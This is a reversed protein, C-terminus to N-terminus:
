PLANGIFIHVVSYTSTVPEVIGMVAKYTVDPQAFLLMVPIGVEKSKLIKLLAYKDSITHETIALTAKTANNEWIAEINTLSYEAKGDIMQVHIEWKLPTRNQRKRLDEEPVFSKYYLQGKTPAEIRIGKESDLITLITCLKKVTQLPLDDTFTITVFPDYGANIIDKFKELLDPLPANTLITEKTDSLDFIMSEQSNTTAPSWNVKMAFDRVRTKGDKHEPEIIIDLLEGPTFSYDGNVVQSNYVESKGAIRPLDLISDIENYNAAISRPDFEDAALSQMASNTKSILLRSGTFVFGSAPIIKGTNSNKILSEIPIYKSNPQKTKRFRMTVREGKPWFQMITQNVPRGPTMGIFILAKRIASPLAFSIALAEYDHGSQEGILFYEATAGAELGTAEAVVYIKKTIRNAELGPLILINPNDKNAKLRAKYITDVHTKNQKRTAESSDTTDANAFSIMLILLIATRKM